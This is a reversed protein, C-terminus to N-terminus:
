TLVEHRSALCEILHAVHENEAGRKRKNQQNENKSVNKKKQTTRATRYSMRCLNVQRQRGFSHAGGGGPFPPSKNKNTKTKPKKTQKKTKNQKTKNQKKQSLLEDTAWDPRSKM